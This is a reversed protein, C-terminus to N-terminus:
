QAIVDIENGTSDQTVIEAVIRHPLCVITDHAMSISGQQMCYHDPCDAEEMRVTGNEIVLCNRGRGTQLVIHQEEQLSYTGYMRGDVTIQVYSGKTKGPLLILFLLLLVAAAAFAAALLWDNRCLKLPNQKKM